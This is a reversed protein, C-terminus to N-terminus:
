GRNEPADIAILTAFWETLAKTYGLDALRRNISDQNGWVVTNWDGAAVRAEIAKCYLGKDRQVYFGYTRCATPRHEYVLCAGADQDLLPCVLPRDAQMALATVNQSIAAFVSAPLGDLGTKLRQWEASTLTPIEALRRCCGDCGMRCLWDPHGVRIASVRMEIVQDLQALTDGDNEMTQKPRNM